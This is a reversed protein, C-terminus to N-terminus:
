DPQRTVVSIAVAAVLLGIGLLATLMAAQAHAQLALSCESSLASDPQSLTGCSRGPVKAQTATSAAALVLMFIGLVLCVQRGRTALM